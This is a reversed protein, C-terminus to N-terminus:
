QPPASKESRYFRPIWTGVMHLYLAPDIRRLRQRKTETADYPDDLIIWEYACAIYEARSSMAYSDWQLSPDAQAALYFSAVSTGDDIHHINEHILVPVRREPRTDWFTKSFRTNGALCEAAGHFSPTIDLLAGPAKAYLKECFVDGGMKQLFARIDSEYASASAGDYRVHDDLYTRLAADSLPPPPPPEPLPTSPDALASACFLLAPLLAPM